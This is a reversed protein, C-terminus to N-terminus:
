RIGATTHKQRNEKQVDTNVYVCWQEIRLNCVCGFQVNNDKCQLM